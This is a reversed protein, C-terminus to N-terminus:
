LLINKLFLSKLELWEVLQWCRFKNEGLATKLSKQDLFINHHVAPVLDTLIQKKVYWFFM